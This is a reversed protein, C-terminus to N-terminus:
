NYRYAREEIDQGKSDILSQEYTLRKGEPSTQVGRLGHFIEDIANAVKNIQIRYTTNNLNKKENDIATLPKNVGPEKYIFEIARLVGGIEKEFLSKDEPCLDHIQVPIIRNAVNGNPLKVKIGFQDQSAQDVFAKFEHEWAFSKPDCYTRSIIPIFVLCKLKDKLSADM